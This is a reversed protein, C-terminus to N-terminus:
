QPSEITEISELLAKAIQYDPIGFGETYGGLISNLMSPAKNSGGSGLWLRALSTAARLALLMANQEKAINLARNYAAEVEECPDGRCEMLAGKLRVTEAHWRYEKSFEILSQAEDIVTVGEDFEEAQLLLDALLALFYPRRMGTGTSQWTDIGLRVQNIGTEFEGTYFRAWGVLVMSQARFSEFGNAECVSIAQNAEVLVMEPELRYQYVQAVFYHAMALSFPHTLREALAVGERAIEVAQDVRGMLCLAESTTTKACVAPDHGGYHFAHHRHQNIDYLADGDKTHNLSESINGIFLETTWAAHHAQLLHDNNLDEEQALRLVIRSALRALDIQGRQQYVLWLGWEAQYSKSTNGIDSSLDSARRYIKEAEPAALGKLSMLVPGLALCFDLELLDREDSEPENHLLDYGKSLHVIAEHNASREIARLGAKYRYDISPRISGAEYFHHALLEPQSEILDEFKLELLKAVRLHCSQRDRILLSQYAVNQVLAHKFTYTANPSTGRKVILDARVAQDLATILHDEDLGIIERLLTEDFDRGVVSGIQLIEKSHGLRDLRAMLSDQLTEPIDTASVKSGAEIISRTLEETYLPIGDSHAIIHGIIEEPLQTGAIETIMKEVMKRSLRNLTITTVDTISALTPAEGKRYTIVLLLPYNAVQQALHSLFEQTSPDIWHVDELIILVPHVQSLGVVQGLLAKLTKERYEDPSLDLLEYRDGYHLSLLSAFLPMHQELEQGSLTLLSELRTLRDEAPQDGDPRTNRDLHHIIPYYASDQHYPSCQFRLRFHSEDVITALLSQVIRSKGIGPEGCLEVVQGEGEKAFRWRESLLALEHTRGVFTGLFHGRTTEFRSKSVNEAVIQWAAVPDTFGKLKHYGLDRIQFASGLLRRTNDSIVVQDPQAVSQLRAALNPTEGIVAGADHGTRGILDGIVVRGTALGIRSQLIPCHELELKSLNVLIELAARVARDAQDEYARPWGFYALVGDGLYKAIHGSFRAIAETVADQYARMIERLEEPDLNNSLATSGVLDCFLITIQRREAETATSKATDSTPADLLEELAVIAKLIKKRDVLRAVGLDKLDENTLEFLLTNDVGNEIFAPLFKEMGLSTLFTAVDM